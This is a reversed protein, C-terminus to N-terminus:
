DEAVRPPIVPDADPDVVPPPPPPLEGYVATDRLRRSPSSRRQILQRLMAEMRELREPLEQETNSPAAGLARALDDRETGLRELEARLREFELAKAAEWESQAQQYALLVALVVRDKTKTRVKEFADHRAQDLPDRNVRPSAASALEGDSISRKRAHGGAGRATAAEMAVVTRAARLTKDGPRQGPHSSLRRAVALEQPTPRREIPPALLVASLSSAILLSIRKM